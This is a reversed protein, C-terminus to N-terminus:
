VRSTVTKTSIGKLMGLKGSLSSTIDGPADIVVCIVNVQHERHRCPLGLRGQIYAAFDHLLENVRGVATNDEIIISIVSLRNEMEKRGIIFL